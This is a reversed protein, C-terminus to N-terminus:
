HRVYKIKEKKDKKDKKKDDPTGEEEDEKYTINLKGWGWKLAQVAVYVV